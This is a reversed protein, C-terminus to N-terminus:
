LIKRGTLIKRVELMASYTPLIYLTERSQLSTISESVAANLDTYIRMRKETVGAYKLRLVLDYCRDGSLVIRTLGRNKENGRKDAIREFDVDWIWSVDRGDPIRDNLVFLIQKAGLNLVTKLSENFGVPNKSLFIKVKKGNVTFEEQRGFAPKIGKLASSIEENKINLVKAVSVAALTNYLNYLGPLPADWSTIHPNPRKEGCNSCKWIGIHSYYIGTYDLRGGCNLCFISDTAHEKEKLFQKPDNIGFYLVKRYNTMRAQGPDSEPGARVESVQIVDVRKEFSKGLHAVQPDDANLILSSSTPLQKLAKEWKEAIVDVEGYRDLQDRFLNLLVIILRKKNSHLRSSANKEISVERSRRNVDSDSSSYNSIQKILIPLTNEDVEFVGWDAKMKGLWDSYQIYSSVIGNLLNAGSDNHIVKYGESELIKKIMMSTTTKGNTGTVIIVGKSLQNVLSSLINPSITLAIEGPWTGGAGLGLLKCAFYTIKGCFLALVNRM